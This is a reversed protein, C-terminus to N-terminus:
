DVRQERALDIVAANVWYLDQNSTYFLFRGDRTVFPCFEQGSTNVGNGLAIAPSWQGGEGRFSVYIDSSGAGSRRTSSFLVYSGDPAIFPDGEYARTNAGGELRVPTAFGDGDPTATYIDFDGESRNSSFVLTGNNTFSVFYEDAETRVPAELYVPDSWGDRTRRVYGIDHTVDNPGGDQLGTSIFYLRTRDRSLFPDSFSHVPHTLVLEPDTWGDRTHRMGYFEGRSGARAVGFYLERGDASFSQGYEFRDDLSVVGPAFKEPVVGPAAQNLYAGPALGVLGREVLLARLESESEYPHILERYAVGQTAAIAAVRGQGLLLTDPVVEAISDDYAETAPVIEWGEGRLAAALDDVFLAALDNEHLLIVHVPSRGLTRQAIDDYFGVAAMLVEVYVDRWADLDIPRKAKVAEDFLYQLYYDYNDVTVYGNTLSLKALGARIADRRERTNGEHLFPFRFFPVVNDFGALGRQAKAIDSVFAAADTRNASAHVHSHNALTHGADTYRRLRAAGPEGRKELNGTTVFFVAEDVGGAALSELLLTTRQEASMFAGASRPADDFTITIRRAPEAAVASAAIFLSASTLILRRALSKM